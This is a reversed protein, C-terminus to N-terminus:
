LAQPATHAQQQLTNGSYHHQRAYHKKTDQNSRQPLNHLMGAGPCPLGLHEAPLKLIYFRPHAHAPKRLISLLLDPVRSSLCQLAHCRSCQMM